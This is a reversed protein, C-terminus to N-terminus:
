FWNRRFIKKRNQWLPSRRLQNEDMSELRLLEIGFQSFFPTLVYENQFHWWEACLYNQPFCGRHGINFFGYYNAIETFNIVRAEVPQYTLRGNRWVVANLRQVPGDPVRCYVTWKRGNETIIYPDREPDKMGSHIFLDFAIGTYHLSKTSRGPTLSASIDRLSGSSTIVGGYSLIENRLGEYYYAVDERLRFHQYGEEYGQVEDAPVRRIGFPVERAYDLQMKWLTQEGPIGDVQLRNRSQFEAVAQHFINRDLIDWASLIGHYILHNELEMFYYYENQYFTDEDTNLYRLLSSFQPATEPYPYYVGGEGVPEEKAEPKVPPNLRSMLNFTHNDTSNEMVPDDNTVIQCSADPFVKVIIFSASPSVTRIEPIPVIGDLIPVVTLRLEGPSANEPLPFHIEEIVENQTEVTAEIPRDGQLYDATYALDCVVRGSSDDEDADLIDGNEDVMFVMLTYKDIWSAPDIIDSWNNDQYTLLTRKHITPWYPEKFNVKYLLEISLDEMETSTIKIPVRGGENEQFTFTEPGHGQSPKVDITINEVLPSGTVTINTMLSVEPDIQYVSEPSAVKLLDNLLVVLRSSKTTLRKGQKVYFRIDMECVGQFGAQQNEVLQKWVMAGFETLELTYIVKGVEESTNINITKIERDSYGELRGAINRITIPAFQWRKFSKLPSNAEERLQELEELANEPYLSLTFVSRGGTIRTTDGVDENLVSLSFDLFEPQQVMFFLKRSNEDPWVVYNGIDIPEGLINVPEIHQINRSFKKLAYHSLFKPKIQNAMVVTSFYNGKIGWKKGKAASGSILKLAKLNAPDLNVRSAPLVVPNVNVAPKPRVTSEQKKNSKTHAKM